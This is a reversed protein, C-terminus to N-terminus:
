QRIPVPDPTKIWRGSAQADDISADDTLVFVDNKIHARLGDSVPM